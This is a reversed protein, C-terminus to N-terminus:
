AARHFANTLKGGEDVERVIKHWDGALFVNDDDACDTMRQYGKAFHYSQLANSANEQDSLAAEIALKTLQVTLGFRHLGAHSLRRLFQQNIPFGMKLGGAEVFREIVSALFGFTEGTEEFDKISIKRSRREMQGDKDRDIVELTEPIGVLILWVPWSLDQMLSKV